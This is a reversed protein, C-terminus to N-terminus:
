YVREKPPISAVENSLPQLHVPRYDLRVGGDDDLWALTHKLWNQDDRKPFDERAHAGRSETRGVASHFSVSAQALMNDLELAEALETNFTMSRDTVSLDDRMMAIVGDLTGLGEQLLPGDRFVACHRQMTRQMALRIAGAGTGGKSERVRDLRAIARDAAEKPSPAHSEGPRVTEVVRRAAARGFVIIDLLSNSGLRNAGHVSVCAAEGIAMLGPVIAEPNGDRMTVVEGHMNTPVGGMNYHVTPLVPIPERTVDVGAFIKATESIGPLRQHLLEAGLHELHLLIHDKEPGCGRGENIEITMSRCVVDRGALDKASPAYREMFREGESNTLYGGEGRAGETILCGSGYIGTPHFQTFEMDELPLGARLAMANGDGTCTHAATCSFYVRGYGGTALVTCHARFRTLTGDEMNWALMGRCTGDEDMLLDLALYEVFFETKHELCQQYLTHLIAHGTRDAAACTRQAMKKGYEITQGGFPRQYIRGDETRSFPVGYHELELVAPVAERCMYEIADQDGLWDSGKVTDYMHFRWNDGDGMNGLSAAMGGQAAVTHSRTPFVKTVCATKLGSAAMGLAARLGAGGAGVIVVDYNREIIQYAQTM